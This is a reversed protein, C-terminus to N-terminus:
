TLRSPLSEELKTHNTSQRWYSGLDVFQTRNIYTCAIPMACIFNNWTLNTVPLGFHSPESSKALEVGRSLLSVGGLGGPSGGGIWGRGDLWVPQLGSEWWVLSGSTLGLFVCLVGVARACFSCGRVASLKDATLLRSQKHSPPVLVGEVGM